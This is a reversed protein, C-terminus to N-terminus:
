VRRLPEIPRQDRADCRLSRREYPSSIEYTRPAIVGGSRLEALFSRAEQVQKADVGPNEALLQDITRPSKPM